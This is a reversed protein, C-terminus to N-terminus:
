RREPGAEKLLGWPGEAVYQELIGGEREQAAGLRQTELDVRDRVTRFGHGVEVPRGAM